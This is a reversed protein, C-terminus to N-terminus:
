KKNKLEEKNSYKRKAEEKIKDEVELKAMELAELIKKKFIKSRLLIWKL